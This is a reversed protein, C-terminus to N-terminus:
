VKAQSGVAKIPVVDSKPQVLIQPETLLIAHLIDPANSLYTQNVLSNVM